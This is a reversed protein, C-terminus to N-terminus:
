SETAPVEDGAPGVAGDGVATSITDNAEKKNTKPALLPTGSKGLKNNEVSM